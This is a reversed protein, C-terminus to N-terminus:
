SLFRWGLRSTWAQGHGHDGDHSGLPAVLSLAPNDVVESSVGAQHDAVAPAVVGAVGHDVGMAVELQVQDRRPDEVAGGAVQEAVPHDDM